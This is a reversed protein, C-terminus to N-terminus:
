TAETTADVNNVTFKSQDKQCKPVWLEMDATKQFYHGGDWIKENSIYRFWYVKISYSSNQNYAGM